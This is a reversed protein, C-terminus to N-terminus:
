RNGYNQGRVEERLARIEERVAKIEGTMREYLEKVAAGVLAVTRAYAVHKYGDHESEVVLEPVIGMLEDAVYGVVDYLTIFYLIPYYLITYYLM